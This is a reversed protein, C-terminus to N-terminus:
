KVSPDYCVLEVLNGEPDPVYMSRLHMWPHKLTEIVLGLKEFREKETAFDELGITFAIHHLSTKQADLGTFTLSRHDPPLSEDFLGFEQPHGGYGPAVKFFVIDDSRGLIELGIVNEYFEQMTQLNKVRIVIEGLTKIPRDPNDMDHM